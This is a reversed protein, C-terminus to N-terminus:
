QLYRNKVLGPVVKINKMIIINETGDACQVKGKYNGMHRVISMSGNATDIKIDKCKELGYMGNTNSKMHCTV